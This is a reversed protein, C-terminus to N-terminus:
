LLLDIKHDTLSAYFTGAHCNVARLLHRYMKYIHLRSGDRQLKEHLSKQDHKPCLWLSFLFEPATLFHNYKLRVYDNLMIAWITYGVTAMFKSLDIVVMGTYPAMYPKHNPKCSMVSLVVFKQYFILKLNSLWLTTAPIYKFTSYSCMWFHVYFLTYVTCAYECSM